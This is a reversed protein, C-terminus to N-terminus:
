LFIEDQDNPVEIVHFKRRRSKPKKAELAELIDRELEASTKLIFRRTMVQILLKNSRLPNGYPSVVFYWPHDLPVGLAKCREVEEPTRNREPVNKM